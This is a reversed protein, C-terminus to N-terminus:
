RYISDLYEDMDDENVDIMQDMTEKHACLFAVFGDIKRQSTKSPVKRGQFDMKVVVNLACYM